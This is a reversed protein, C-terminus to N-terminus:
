RQRMIQGRTVRIAEAAVPEIWLWSRRQVPPRRQPSGEQWTPEFIVLIAELVRTIRHIDISHVPPHHVM